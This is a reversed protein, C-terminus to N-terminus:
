ARIGFRGQVSASTGPISPAVNKLCKSNSALMGPPTSFSRASTKCSATCPWRLLLCLALCAGAEGLGGEGVDGDGLVLFCEAMMASKEKLIGGDGEVVNGLEALGDELKGDLAAKHRLVRLVFRRRLHANSFACFVDRCGFHLFNWELQGACPKPHPQAMHTFQNISVSAFFVVRVFRFINLLSNRPDIRPVDFGIPRKGNFSHM